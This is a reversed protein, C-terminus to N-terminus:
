RLIVVPNFDPGPFVSMPTRDVVIIAAAVVAILGVVLAARTRGARPSMRVALAVVLAIPIAAAVARLPLADGDVQRWVESWAETRPVAQAVEFMVDTGEALPEGGIFARGPRYTEGRAMGVLIPKSDAMAAIRFLAKGGPGLESERPSPAIRVVLQRPEPPVDVTASRLSPGHPGALLEIRAHARSGAYAAGLWIRIGVDRETLFLEQDIGIGSVIPGAYFAPEALAAPIPAYSRLDRASQIVSFPQLSAHVLIAAVAGVVAAAVGLAWRGPMRRQRIGVARETTRACALIWAVRDAARRWTWLTDEDDPQNNSTAKGWGALRRARRGDGPDLVTM